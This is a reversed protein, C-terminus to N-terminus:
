VKFTYKGSAITRKRGVTDLMKVTYYYTGIKTAQLTSPAFEVEGLVANIFVGPLEYQIAAVNEYDPDSTVQLSLTSGTLDIPLGTRVSIVKLFDAYTDGKFRELDQNDKAQQITQM